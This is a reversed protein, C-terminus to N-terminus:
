ESPAEEDRMGKWNRILAKRLENQERQYGTDTCHPMGLAERINNMARHFALQSGFQASTLTVIRYGMQSLVAEREADAGKREFEDHFGGKYESVSSGASTPLSRM